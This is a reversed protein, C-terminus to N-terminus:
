GNNGGGFILEYQEDIIQKLQSNTIKERGLSEFSKDGKLTVGNVKPLNKLVEYDDVGVPIGEVLKVELEDESEMQPELIDSNQMTVNLTDTQILSNADINLTDSTLDMSFTNDDSMTVNLLSDDM